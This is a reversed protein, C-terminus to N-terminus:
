KRAKKLAILEETAKNLTLGASKLGDRIHQAIIKAETKEYQELTMVRVQKESHLEHLLLKMLKGRKSNEDISVIYKTM